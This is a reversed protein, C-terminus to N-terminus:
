LSERQVDSVRYRSYLFNAVPAHPLSHSPARAPHDPAVLSYHLAMRILGREGLRGIFARDLAKAFEYCITSAMIAHRPLFALQQDPRIPPLSPSPRQCFSTDWLRVADLLEKSTSCEELRDGPWGNSHVIRNRARRFYHFLPLVGLL